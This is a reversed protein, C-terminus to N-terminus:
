CYTLMSKLAAVESPDAGLGWQSKVEIWRRAYACQYQKRPRWAAPDNSGKSANTPGDVALLNRLDNAYQVRRFRNWAHAGSAWAEALPVVHDIQIAQAQRQDKLDTFTMTRGTYPDAWTGAVVDHDCSGQREVRVQQASANLIDDRQNCGNHDTDVWGTGFADRRYGAVGAPHREILRLGELRDLASKARSLHESPAETTPALTLPGVADDTARGPSALM